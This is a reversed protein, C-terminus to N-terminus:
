GFRKEASFPLLRKKELRRTMKKKRQSMTAKKQNIAKTLTMKRPNTKTRKQSTKKMTAKRQSMKTRKSNTKMPITIKNKKQDKTKKWQSKRQRTMLTKRTTQIKKQLFRVSIL